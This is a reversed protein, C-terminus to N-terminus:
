HTLGLNTNKLVLKVNNEPLIFLYVLSAILLGIILGDINTLGHSLSEVPLITALFCFIWALIPGYTFLPGFRRIYIVIFSLCMLTISTLVHSQSVLLGLLFTALYSIGYILIQIIQMKRNSSEIGQISFGSAIGAFLKEIYSADQFWWLAILIAILTKFAHILRLYGPDVNWLSNALASTKM